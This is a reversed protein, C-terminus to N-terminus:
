ALAKMRELEATGKWYIDCGLDRSTPVHHFGAAAWLETHVPNVYVIAVPQGHRAVAEATKEVVKTMLAEGCPHYFYLVAPGPPIEYNIFDDCVFEANTCRQQPNRYVSWNRRAIATLEPSFDIGVLKRFPYESALLVARGKGSGFDVFTFDDLPVRLASIASRFRDPAVPIYDTGQTWNASAIRLTRLHTATGGDGDTQVGHRTDFDSAPRKPAFLESLVKRLYLPGRTLVYKLTELPGREAISRHVIATMETILGRM